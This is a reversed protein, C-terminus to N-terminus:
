GASGHVPRVPRRGGAQARDQLGQVYEEHTMTTKYGQDIDDYEIAGKFTKWNGMAGASLFHEAAKTSTMVDFLLPIRSAAALPEVTAISFRACGRSWSKRGNNLFQWTDGGRVYQRVHYGCFVVYALVNGDDDLSSKDVLIM